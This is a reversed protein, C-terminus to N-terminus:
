TRLRLDEFVRPSFPGMRHAFTDVRFGPHVEEPVTAGGIVDRQEVVVVSLGARALYAAATLGNHGAGSVIADCPASM